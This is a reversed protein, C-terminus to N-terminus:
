SDSCKKLDVLMLNPPNKDKSNKNKNMNMNMNVRCRHINLTWLHPPKYSITWHESLDKKFLTRNLIQANHSM